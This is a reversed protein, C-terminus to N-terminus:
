QLIKVSYLMMVIGMLGLLVGAGRVLPLYFETDLRIVVPYFLPFLIQKWFPETRRFHEIREKYLENQNYNVQNLQRTIFKAKTIVVYGLFIFFASIIISVIIAM